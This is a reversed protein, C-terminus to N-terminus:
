PKVELTRIDHIRPAEVSVSIEYGVGGILVIGGIRDPPPSGPGRSPFVPLVVKGNRCTIGANDIVYGKIPYAFFDHAEGAGPGSLEIEMRWSSGTRVARVSGATLGSEALPRPFRAEFRALLARGEALSEPAPPFVAKVPAEGMLCGERCAMWEFVAAAEWSAGAELPEAPMLDCILLVEGRHEYSVLGEEVRKIPVPHRLPGAKFGKPL